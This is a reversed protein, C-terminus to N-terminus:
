WRIHHLKLWLHNSCSPTSCYFRDRRLVAKREAETPSATRPTSASSPSPAASSSTLWAAIRPVTRARFVRPPQDRRPRPQTQSNLPGPPSPTANQSDTPGLPSLNQQLLLPSRGNQEGPDQSPIPGGLALELLNAKLDIQQDRTGAHSWERSECKSVACGSENETHDTVLGLRRAVEQAQSVLPEQALQEAAFERQAEVKMKEEAEDFPKGILVETVLQEVLEAFSLPRGQLQSRQQM